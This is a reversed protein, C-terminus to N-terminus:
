RGRPGTGTMSSQAINNPIISSNLSAVTVSTITTIDGVNFPVVLGVTDEPITIEEAIGVSARAEFAGM